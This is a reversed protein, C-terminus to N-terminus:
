CFRASLTPQGSGTLEEVAAPRGAIAMLLAEAPGEVVPGQGRSWEIDSATLELGRVRKRARIPSATVAFDLACRIREAPIQRPTGLARRIDQHHILGDTLAIRGGFMSTLGRPEIHDRALQALKDTIDDAYKAVGVTNVRDPQLRGSLFRPVLGLSRSGRLQLHPRRRRPGAVPRVTVTVGM